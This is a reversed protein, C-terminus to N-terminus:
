QLAYAAGRAAGGAGIILASEGEYSEKVELLAGLVGLWDTNYGVLKDGSNIITNIAGTDKAVPTIEDVFKLAEEKFPITVSYARFGMERMANIPVTLDRVKFAHYHFPLNLAQFGTNHLKASSQSPNTALLGCVYPSSLKDWHAKSNRPQNTALYNLVTDWAVKTNQSM